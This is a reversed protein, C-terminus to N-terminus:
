KISFVGGQKLQSSYCSVSKETGGRASGVCLSTALHQRQNRDERVGHAINPERDVRADEDLPDARVAQTEQAAITPLPVTM